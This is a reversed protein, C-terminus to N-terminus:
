DLRDLLPDLRSEHLEWQGMLWKMFSSPNSGPKGGIYLFEPEESHWFEEPTWCGSDEGHYLTTQKWDYVTFVDGKDNTFIYVGSVKHGDSEAPEGFLEVLCIPPLELLTIGCTGTIHAELNLKYM